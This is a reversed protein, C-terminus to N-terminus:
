KKFKSLLFDASTLLRAVYCLIGVPVFFVSLIVLLNTFTGNAFLPTYIRINDGSIIFFCIICQLSTSNNVSNNTTM